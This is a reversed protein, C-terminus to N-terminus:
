IYINMCQNLNLHMDNIQAKKFFVFAKHFGKCCTYVWCCKIIIEVTPVGKRVVCVSAGFLM